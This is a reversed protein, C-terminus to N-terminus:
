SKKLTLDLDTNPALVLPIWQKVLLEHQNHLSGLTGTALLIHKVLVPRPLLSTVEQFTVRDSENGSIAIAQNVQSSVKPTMDKPPWPGPPWRLNLAIQSQMMSHKWRAQPIVGECIIKAYVIAIKHDTLFQFSKPLYKSCNNHISWYEGNAIISFRQLTSFFRALSTDYQALETATAKAIAFPFCVTEWDLIVCCNFETEAPVSPAMSIVKEQM